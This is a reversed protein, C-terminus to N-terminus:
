NLRKSILKLTFYFYSRGQQDAKEWIPTGHLEVAVSLDPALDVLGTEALLSTYCLRALTKAQTSSVDRASVKVFHIEADIQPYVHGGEQPEQVCVQRAPDETFENYFIDTGPTLSTLPALYTVISELLDM